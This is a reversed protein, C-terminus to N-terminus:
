EDNYFLPGGRGLNHWMSVVTSATIDNIKKMPPDFLEGEKFKRGQQVSYAVM